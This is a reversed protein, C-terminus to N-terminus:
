VEVRGIHEFDEDFNRSNKEQAIIENVDNEKLTISYPCKGRGKDM